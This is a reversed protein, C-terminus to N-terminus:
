KLKTYYKSKTTDPKSDKSKIGDQKVDNQKTGNNSTVDPKNETKNLDDVKTETKLGDSSEVDKPNKRMPLTRHHKHLWGKKHFFFILAAVLLIIGVAILVAVLWDWEFEQLTGSAPAATGSVGSNDDGDDGDGYDYYDPTTTLTTTVTKTTVAPPAATPSDDKVEVTLEDTKTKGCTDKVEIKLVHSGLPAHKVMLVMSTNKRIQFYANVAELHVLLGPVDHRDPDIAEVNYVDMKDTM